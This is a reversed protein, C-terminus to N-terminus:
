FDRQRVSISLRGKKERAEGAMISRNARFGCIQCNIMGMNRVLIQFGYGRGESLDSFEGKGGLDKFFFFIIIVLIEDVHNQRNVRRM